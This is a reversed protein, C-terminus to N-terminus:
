LHENHLSQKQYTPKTQTIKQHPHVLNDGRTKNQLYNRDQCLGM